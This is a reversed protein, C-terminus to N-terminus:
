VGNINPVPKLTLTEPFAACHVIGSQLGPSAVARKRHGCGAPLSSGPIM